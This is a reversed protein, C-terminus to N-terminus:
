HPLYENYNYSPGLLVIKGSPLAGPPLTSTVQVHHTITPVVAGIPTIGLIEWTQFKNNNTVNALYAM